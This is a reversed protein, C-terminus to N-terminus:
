GVDHGAHVAEFRGGTVQLARTEDSRVVILRMGHGDSSARLPHEALRDFRQRQALSDLGAEGSMSGQLPSDSPLRWLTVSLRIRAPGSIKSQGPAAAARTEDPEVPLKAAQGM